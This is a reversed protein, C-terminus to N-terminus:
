FTNLTVVEYDSAYKAQVQEVVQNLHDKRLPESTDSVIRREITAHRTLLSFKCGEEATVHGTLVIVAGLIYQGIRAAALSICAVPKTSDYGEGSVTFEVRFVRDEARLAQHLLSIERANRSIDTLTVNLPHPLDFDTVLDSACDLAELEQALSFSQSQCTVNLIFAPYGELEFKAALRKGSSSVLFLLRLTDRLERIDRPGNDGASFHYEGSGTFPHFKLDFCGGEIRMTAFKKPVVANLPSVFLRCDFRLGPSLSSERFTVRGTAMPKLDPMELTGSESDVLPSRSRIGFRTHFGKFGRISVSKKAGISVDILDNLNEEGETRVLIQASGAEFGVSELFKSKESVYAAMGKSLLSEIRQKLTEGNLPKLEDGPGYSVTLTRKNHDHRDHVQELEHIRKLVAEVITDGIHVLFGRQATQMGDFEIVVLFSPMQATILRRLNSLKIPIRREQKDSAKVQVKCEIASAHLANPSDGLPMPFEVYFDWGTRDLRSGNHVLGGQSCWLTFTSEGMMGLDRM